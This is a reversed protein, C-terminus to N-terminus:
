LFIRMIKVEKVSAVDNVFYLLSFLTFEIKNKHVETPHEYLQNVKFSRKSIFSANLPNM